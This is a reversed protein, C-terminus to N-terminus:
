ATVPRIWAPQHKGRLKWETMGACAPIWHFVVNPREWAKPWMETRDLTQKAKELRGRLTGAPLQELAALGRLSEGEVHHKYLLEIMWPGGIEEMLLQWLSNLLRPNFLFQSPISTPTTV